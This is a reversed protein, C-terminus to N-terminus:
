RTEENNQQGLCDEDKTDFSPGAGAVIYIM